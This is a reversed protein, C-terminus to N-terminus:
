DRNLEIRWRSFRSEFVGVGDCLVCRALKTQSEAGQEQPDAQRPSARTIRCAFAVFGIMLSTDKQLGLRLGLRETLYSYLTKLPAYNLFDECPSFIFDFSGAGMGMEEKSEETAAM